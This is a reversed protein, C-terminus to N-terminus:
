GLAISTPLAATFCDCRCVMRSTERHSVHALLSEADCQDNEPNSKKEHIRQHDSPGGAPCPLGTLVFVFLHDSPNVCSKAHEQQPGGASWLRVQTEDPEGHPRAYDVTSNHRDLGNDIRCLVTMQRAVYRSKKENRDNETDKRRSRYYRV